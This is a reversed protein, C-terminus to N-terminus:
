AALQARKLFVPLYLLFPQSLLALFRVFFHRCQEKHFFVERQEAM